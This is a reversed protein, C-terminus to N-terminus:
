PCSDGDPVVELVHSMFTWIEWLSVGCLDRHLQLPLSMCWRPPTRTGLLLLQFFDELFTWLQLIGFTRSWKPTSSIGGRSHPLVERAPHKEICWVRRHSTREGSSGRSIVQESNLICGLCEGGRPLRWLGQWAIFQAIKGSELDM